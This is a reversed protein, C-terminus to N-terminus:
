PPASGAPAAPADASAMMQMVREATLIVLGAAALAEVAARGHRLCYGCAGESCPPSGHDTCRKRALTLAAIQEPTDPM